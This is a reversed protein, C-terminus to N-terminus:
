QESPILWVEAVQGGRGGGGAGDNRKWSLTLTGAQTLDQSLKYEVQEPNSTRLRMPQIVVHHNATLEMPLTYDEGAYTIRVTYHIDPRLHTYRLELPTEYLSEAYSLWSMRWGHELTQDAIGDIAQQYMEPDQNWSKGRVLHPENAPDGLDDYLTGPYPTAWQTVTALSQEQEAESPKQLTQDLKQEMWTRNNLPTDVRDLNAGREWNSAGYRTVSLQLGVEHYLLDARRYLDNRLASEEPGATSSQLMKKAETIREQVTGHQQLAEVAQAETHLERQRKIQVFRDYADRYLLSNWRWNDEPLHLHSFLRHTNTISSHSDLLQNTWNQELAFIASAAADAEDGHAGLLFRAYEQLSTRSSEKSNWGMRAWLFKNVDDNVGESYLMFGSTYPAFSRYITTFAQPRPCIPERGETLAFVPDWEPVPFQAHMTHAVDPYFEMQFKEPIQKREVEIGDRTQPGFFVGTLWEPQQQLLAYFRQFKQQDFGQASIWIEAKPHYTHLIKAEQEVLPFLLDPATHGPDGGPVHLSDIQPIQKVLEEFQHLEASVQQADAYDKAMEPYYLDYRLGYQQSLRSLGIVVSLPSAPFLPSTRDDDSIPAVVQVTNMGFIALDRMQQEFQTLTWADYTNNKMRYGIQYGRVPKEPASYFPRVEPLQVAKPQFQMTRLLWGVGFLEGRADSGAVVLVHGHQLPVVAFGEAHSVDGLQQLAHQWANQEQARLLTKVDQLTALVIMPQGPHQDTTHALLLPAASRKSVEQLLMEVAQKEVASNQASTVVYTAGQSWATPLFIGCLAIPLIINRLGSPRIKKM